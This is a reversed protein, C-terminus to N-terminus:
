EYRLAEVPNGIAARYAHYGTTGLTILVTILFAGLFLIYNMSTHYSFTDLWRSMFFWAAIFAPIAAILVLFVFNQTLMVIINSVSAGMIKRIGIEKTRQEATFSALGLLGLCAVVIMIISFLTFIRARIQDAEYLALFSADVFDYELPTEPFLAAWQQEVFAITAPVNGTIKVHGMRNNFRPRFMLPEIPNYLSRQHFDKVVGIVRAVPLTDNSGFQVKKGIPEEWDMRKVMAENVLVALTSDTSFERSFNRGEVIEIGMTPFFDFDVGYNDIGREEMIGEAIEINFITKGSGNGPSIGATAASAINPNQLLAERLVPWKETQQRSTFGFTMMQEKDFGLEKNRVYNMQDYIIGTGILMFLSLVFQVVVLSKRLTHSSGGRAFTGKLVVAPQFASLFFAPYSGGVIGVLFLIGFMGLLVQPTWLLNTSLNLNFAHNFVPILTIVLVLSLGLSVFTLIVSESLFQGILQEKRSGLVKRMGVELARRASRATALNMYNISAILLMFIGVAAFIYIFAMEGAPEPEGEFDSKLHIDTIPLLAYKVKINLEDFIAAVYNKVVEPLKAEFAKPDTSEKLLVYTYVGFGGWSGANQLDPITSASVMVDAIIHSNSPMDKIVGKVEYPNEADTRISQGVAPNDGFIKKAVSESIVMTNPADLAADPSGEIFEFTFVDFVTSDVLYVREEFFQYQDKEIRTRGNPIFRVYEEVEAYDNKLTPALRLQTVAWKFADDPETIDSSIRYIRDAKKHYKDFSLEETTYLLIFLTAAVGLTLGLINLVAYGPQRTFNRLAIKIFNTLM